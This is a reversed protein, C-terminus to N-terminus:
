TPWSWELLRRALRHGRLGLENWWRAVTAAPPWAPLAIPGWAIEGVRRAVLVDGLEPQRDRFAARGLAVRAPSHVGLPDEITAGDADVGAVRWPHLPAEGLARIGARLEVPATPRAARWGDVASRPAGRPALFASHAVAVLRAHRDAVEAWVGYLRGPGSDGVAPDHDAAIRALTAVDPLIV